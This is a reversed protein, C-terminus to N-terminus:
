GWKFLARFIPLFYHKSITNKFFLEHEREVDAMKLLDLKIEDLGSEGAYLAADEYEKVNNSEIRGAFYMAMFWGIVFCLFAITKGIMFLLGERFKDPRSELQKLMVGLCKRHEWEENEIKKIEQIEQPNKVSKWHGNYAHAAALEGSYANQLIRILKERASKEKM